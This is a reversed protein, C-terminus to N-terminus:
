IGIYQDLRYQQHGIDFIEMYPVNDKYIWREIFVPRVAFLRENELSSYADYAHKFCERFADCFDKHGSPKGIEECIGQIQINDICLAVNHNAKIQRYKKMRIDTQFYFIGDKQVISMMRSSVHDAESTSLVMKRGKGFELFFDNIKDTFNRENEM